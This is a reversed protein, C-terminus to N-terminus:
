IDDRDDKRESGVKEYVSEGDNSLISLVIVGFIDVVYKFENEECGDRKSSKCDSM